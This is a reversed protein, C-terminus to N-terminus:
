HQVTEGPGERHQSRVAHRAHGVRKVGLFLALAAIPLATGAGYQLLNGQGGSFVAGLFEIALVVVTVGILNNELDEASETKM